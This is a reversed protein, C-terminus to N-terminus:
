PVTAGCVPNLESDLRAVPYLAAVGVEGPMGYLAAVGYWYWYWVGDCGLVPYVCTFQGIERHTYLAIM